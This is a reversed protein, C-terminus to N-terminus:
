PRAEARRGAAVNVLDAFLDALRPTTTGLGPFAAPLEREAQPSWVGSPPGGARLSRLADFAAVTARSTPGYVTACQHLQLLAFAERLTAPGAAEAQPALEPRERAITRRLAEPSWPDGNPARDRRRRASLAARLNDPSPPTRRWTALRDLEQLVVDPAASGAAARWRHATGAHDAIQRGITPWHQAIRTTVDHWALANM